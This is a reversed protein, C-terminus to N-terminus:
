FLENLGLKDLLGSLLGSEKTQTVGLENQERSLAHSILALVGAHVPQDAEGCDTMLDEATALRVKRAAFIKKCSKLLPKDAASGCLVLQASPHQLYILSQLLEKKIAQLMKTNADELVEDIIEDSGPEYTKLVEQATELDNQLLDAVAQALRDQGLPIEWAEVLAGKYYMVASTATQGIDLLLTGNQKEDATLLMEGQAIICPLIQYENCGCAELVNQLTKLHTALALSLFTEVELTFGVMGKPDTIGINGDITYSQALVDVVELTDSLSTPISNHLAAEIERTGIIRNRSSVSEFGSARKFSLFNGRLGIIVSVSDSAYQSIEDFVASLERQAGQMDRVFAGAFCRCPRRLAHRLRLSDTEE